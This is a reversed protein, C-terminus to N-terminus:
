EVDHRRVILSPATIRAISHPKSVACGARARRKHVAEGGGRRRPRARVCRVKTTLHQAILENLDIARGLLHVHRQGLAIGARRHAVRPPARGLERLRAAYDPHLARRAALDKCHSYTEDAILYIFQDFVLNVEAEIEDYLM